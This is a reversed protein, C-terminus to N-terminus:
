CTFTLCNYIENNLKTIARHNQSNVLRELFEFTHEILLFVNKFLVFHTQWQKAFKQTHTHTHTHIIYVCVGVYGCLSIYTHKNYITYIFYM